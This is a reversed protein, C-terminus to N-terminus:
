TDRRQAQDCFFVTAPDVLGLANKLGDGCPFSFVPSSSVKECAEVHVVLMLVDVAEMIREREEPLMVSHGVYDELEARAEQSTM